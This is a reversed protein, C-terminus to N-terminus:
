VHGSVFLVKLDPNVALLERALEVGNRGPLAVDLLALDVPKRQSGILQLCSTYDTCTLVHVETDTELITRITALDIPEDDCVLVVAGTMRMRSRGRREPSLMM